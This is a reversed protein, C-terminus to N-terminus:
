KEVLHEEFWRMTEAYAKDSDEGEFGHGAGPIVVFKSEVGAERLAQYMSEGEIIPVVDDKDGHIILTPPDDPSVFNLPSFEKFQEETFGKFPDDTDQPALGKSEGFNVLRKLDTPPFYAAVAAVRGTGKEFEETVESNGTESTTALLLSLHGGSSVGFLGLREANIGYGEANFRIFRVSRRLDSVIEHMEFKPISGHRVWFITFGNSLLSEVIGLDPEISLHISDATYEYFKLAHARWGGSNLWIVGAGNQNEPQYMDFTLAMGFKHGYVVDPTIRVGEPTVNPDQATEEPAPANCGFICITLFVAILCRRYM